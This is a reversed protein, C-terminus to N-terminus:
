GIGEPDLVSGTALKERFRPELAKGTAIIELTSPGDEDNGSNAQRSFEVTNTKLSISKVTAEVPPKKKAGENPNVLPKIRQQDTSRSSYSKELSETGSKVGKTHSQLVKQQRVTSAPTNLSCSSSTSKLLLISSSSFSSGTLQKPVVVSETYNAQSTDLSSSCFPQNLSFPHSLLNTLQSHTGSVHIIKPEAETAGNVGDCQNGKEFKEDPMVTKDPLNLLNPQKASDAKNGSFQAIKGRIGSNGQVM